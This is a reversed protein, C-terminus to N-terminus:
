LSTVMPKPGSVYYTPRAVDPVYKIVVDPSLREPDKLYHITLQSYKKALADFEARFTFADDRGSYLLTIDPMRDQAALELLMARFPTVGIGGALFVSPGPSLTFFGYPGAAYVKAGRKLSLLSRKFVSPENPIRTTIQVHGEGPASSVTFPRVATRRDALAGPLFYVYYQGAEWRAARSPKFTFTTVGPIEQTSGSYTLFTGLLQSLHIKM